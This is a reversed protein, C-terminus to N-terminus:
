TNIKPSLYRMALPAVFATVMSLIVMAVILDKSLLDLEVAIFVVALTTSLQPLTSTGILTSERANFGIIRGGVWGSIFKAAMSGFVVFLVLSLAQTSQVFIGLDTKAGVVVFFIPIFLGYSITRLREIVLKSKISNSLVLGAFFGAIIPHLGLVSFAIVTGLLIVFIVRVDQEFIDQESQRASSFMKRIKPLVRRLLVLVGVLLIYFLPLPLVTVPNITQLLISLLVLSVVDEIITTSIITKGIRTKILGNLELSPIIVAISSSIFIIGLLLSPILGFGFVYGIGFGVAFPILGNLLSLTAIDGRFERFSSFKIELGAMFMLFILGIQGMFEITPNLEFVGLGFPGVIIGGVILAIVWPLHFYRFAASFIIGVLLILFLPLFEM